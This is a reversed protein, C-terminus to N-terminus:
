IQQHCINPGTYDGLRTGLSCKQVGPLFYDPCSVLLQGPIARLRLVQVTSVEIIVAELQVILNLFLGRLCM